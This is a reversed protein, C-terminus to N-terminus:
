SRTKGDYNNGRRDTRSGVTDDQNKVPALRDALTKVEHAQGFDTDTDMQTDSRRGRFPATGMEETLRQPGASNTQDDYHTDFGSGESVGAKRAGGGDANVPGGDARKRVRGGKARDPNRGSSSHFRSSASPDSGDKVIDDVSRHYDKYNSQQLLPGNDESVLDGRMTQQMPKLAAYPDGDVGGGDARKEEAIARDLFKPQHKYGAGREPYSM